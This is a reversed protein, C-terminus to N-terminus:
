LYWQKMFDCNIYFKNCLYDAAARGRVQMVVQGRKIDGVTEIYAFSYWTTSSSTNGYDKLNAFSPMMKDAPLRMGKQIGKLIAYGGAASL